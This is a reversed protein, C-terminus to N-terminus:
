ELLSSRLADLTQPSVGLAETAFADWGGYENNVVDLVPQINSASQETLPRILEVDVGQEELFAYTKSYHDALYENSLVFDEIIVEDPVGLVGLLVASMMGTRDKGATCHYSLAGPAEAILELTQGYGAMAEPQDIQAVFSEDKIQQAQGGGLMEEVVAPDGGRMVGTLAEALAQTSEDLVPINVVEITDPVPASGDKEVEDAGRFDVITQVDLEEFVREDEPTLGSLDDARFVKGWVVTRGDKTEYGGMDRVNNAGELEIHRSRNEVREGDAAQDALTAATTAPASTSSEATASDSSSCGALTLVAVAGLAFLSRAPTLPPM